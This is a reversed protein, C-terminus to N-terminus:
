PSPRWRQARCSCYFLRAAPTRGQRPRNASMAASSLRKRPAASTLVFALSRQGVVCQGHVASTSRRKQPTHETGSSTKRKAPVETCGLHRQVAAFQQRRRLAGAAAKAPGLHVFYSVHRVCQYLLEYCAAAFGPTVAATKSRGEAGHTRSGPYGGIFESRLPRPPLATAQSQASVPRSTLSRERFPHQSFFCVARASAKRRCTIHAHSTPPSFSSHTCTHAPGAKRRRLQPAVQAAEPSSHRLAVGQVLPQM